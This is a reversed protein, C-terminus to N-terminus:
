MVRGPRPHRKRTDLIGGGVAVRLATSLARVVLGLPGPFRPDADFLARLGFDLLDDGLAVAAGVAMRGGPQNLDLLGSVAGIMWGLLTRKFGNLGFPGAHFWTDSLLGAACGMFMAGRQSSSIGYLAVPVLLVDIYSHSGPFLRGLGAQVVLAVGLVLLARLASV